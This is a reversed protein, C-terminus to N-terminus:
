VVDSPQVSAAEWEGHHGAVVTFAVQTGPDIRRSGDSIQTCHFRYTEGAATVVSGLGVREDFDSITGKVSVDTM